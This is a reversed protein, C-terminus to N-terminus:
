PVYKGSLGASQRGACGVPGCWGAVYGGVGCAQRCLGFHGAAHAWACTPSERRWGVVMARGAGWGGRRLAPGRGCPNGGQACAKSRRACGGSRRRCPYLGWACPWFGQVAFTGAADAFNLGDGAVWIGKRAVWFGERAFDRGKGDCPESSQARLNSSQVRLMFGQACRNPRQACPKSHRARPNPPQPHTPATQNSAPQTQSDAAPLARFMSFQGQRRRKLCLCASRRCASVFFIVDFDKLCTEKNPWLSFDLMRNTTCAM